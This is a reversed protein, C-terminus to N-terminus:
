RDVSYDGGEFSGLVTREQKSSHSVNQYLRKLFASLLLLSSHDLLNDSLTSKPVQRFDLLVKSVPEGLSGLLTHGLDLAQPSLTM